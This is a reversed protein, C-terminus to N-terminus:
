EGLEGEAFLGNHTVREFEALDDETFVMPVADFVAADAEDGLLRYIPNNRSPDANGKGGKELYLQELWWHLKYRHEWNHLEKWTM